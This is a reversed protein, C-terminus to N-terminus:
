SNPGFDSVMQDVLAPNLVDLGTPALINMVEDRSLSVTKAGNAAAQTTAAKANIADAFQQAIAPDELNYQTQIKTALQDRNLNGDQGLIVLGLNHDELGVVLIVIGVILPTLIIGAEAPQARMVGTSLTAAILLPSLVRKLM